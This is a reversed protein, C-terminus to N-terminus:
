APDAGAKQAFLFHLLDGASENGAFEKAAEIGSSAVIIGYSASDDASVATIIRRRAEALLRAALILYRFPGAPGKQDIAAQLAANASFCCRRKQQDSIASQQDSTKLSRKWRARPRQEDESSGIM